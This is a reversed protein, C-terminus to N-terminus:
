KLVLELVCLSHDAEGTGRGNDRAISSQRDIAPDGGSKVYVRTEVAWQRVESLGLM